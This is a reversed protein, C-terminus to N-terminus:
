TQMQVGGASSGPPTKSHAASAAGGSRNEDEFRKQPDFRM